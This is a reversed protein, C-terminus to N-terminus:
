KRAGEPILGADRALFLRFRLEAEARGYMEATVKSGDMNYQELVAAARAVDLLIRKHERLTELTERQLSYPLDLSNIYM